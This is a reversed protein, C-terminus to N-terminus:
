KCPKLTVCSLLLVEPLWLCLFRGLMHSLLHLSHLIAASQLAVSCWSWLVELTGNKNHRPSLLIIYATRRTLTSGWPALNGWQEVESYDSQPNNLTLLFFPLRLCDGSSMFGALSMLNERYGNCLQDSVAGISEITVQLDCCAASAMVPILEPWPLCVDQSLPTALWVMAIGILKSLSLYLSLDPVKQERPFVSLVLLLTGLVFYYHAMTQLISWFLLAM